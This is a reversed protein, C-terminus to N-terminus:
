FRYTLKLRFSRGDQEIVDQLHDEAGPYGYHTDFVNYVSASVELNKVLERSFLTLNAIWFDDAHNGSLTKVEGQYQLEVGAFLNDQFIPCALNFKALHRPSNSLERHDGDCAQQLAYSIRAMLGSEYNAELEFEGGLARASDINAFAINGFVVDGGVVNTQSILNEIDEYYGSFSLRYTDALYQEYVFEYTRITEPELKPLTDQAPYYFQEYANPARFAKGYLLKFTGGQWPNYILGMRPNLTGGFSSFFQDYRLGANLVLNTLLAADGQAYLGLTRSQHNDKLYYFPPSVADYNAQYQRINERYEGGILLAHRDLIHRTWQWETGAWDGKIGDKDLVIDPPDGPLAFDYPYTGTLSYHDLFVRAQLRSEDSFGHDYKLDVYSRIDTTEERGDNFVTLFSATPVHKSRYAYSGSLTFDQYRLSSFLNAAEEADADEAIGNNAARPDASIRQDFEPFYLNQQGASTYYSSSLLLEVGSNFKDGFTFRGKYSDFSGAEVSAEAGGIQRGRRTVINIVGFFASSGYISSSPGRIVEVRDVLDLDVERDLDTSDYINDNLRHGDMLVLVRTNYDGPPQFGRVGLYSYNRDSSVYLGRVSRLADVLTRHGFKKIEDSTIISVSAPAQTVKQEYKSAAYVSAVEVGVLQEISLDALNTAPGLRPTESSRGASTVALVLLCAFTARTMDTLIAM